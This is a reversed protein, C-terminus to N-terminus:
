RQRRQRRAGWDMDSRDMDNFARGGVMDLYFHLSDTPRWEFSAVGNYRDRSGGEYMSAAWARCCPM